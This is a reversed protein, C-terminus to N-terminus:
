ELVMRKTVVQAGRRAQLLYLGAAREGLDLPASLATSVTTQSLRQGIANYLTLEYPAFCAGPVQVQVFRRSPNPFVSLSFDACTGSEDTSPELGNFYSQIFNPLGASPSSEPNAFVFPQARVQCAFGRRNPYNIVYMYHQGAQRPLFRDEYNCNGYLRGDLGLQLTYDGTTLQQDARINTTPNGAVISMRSAVVAAADGAALDFQSLIARLGRAQDVVDFHSVYLKSNDPSFSVSSAELSPGLNLHNYSGPLPM